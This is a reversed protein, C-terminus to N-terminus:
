KADESHDTIKVVMYSEDVEFSMPTTIGYGRPLAQLEMEIAGLPRLEIVNTRTEDDVEPVRLLVIAKDTPPNQALEAIHAACHDCTKRYIVVLCPAPMEDVKGPPLFRAIDTDFIMQNDWAEPKFFYFDGEIAETPAGQAGSPEDTDAIAPPLEVPVFKTYPAWVALGLLPVLVILRLPLLKTRPLRQWPKSLLLCALIAGDICAM